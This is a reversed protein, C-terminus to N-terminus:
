ECLGYNAFKLPEPFFKTVCNSNEESHDFCKRGDNYGALDKIELNCVFNFAKEVFHDFVTALTDSNKVCAGFLSKAEVVLDQVLPKIDWCFKQVTKINVNELNRIDFNYRSVRHV